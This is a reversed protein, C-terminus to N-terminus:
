PEERWQILVGALRERQGKEVGVEDDVVALRDIVASSSGRRRGRAWWGLCGWRRGLHRALTICLHTNVDEEERPGIGCQARWCSEKM